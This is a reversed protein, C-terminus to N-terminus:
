NSKQLRAEVEKQETIDWNTGIMRIAKGSQDREISALAKITRVAGDPRCIRFETDFEKEGAIAQRIEFDGRWADEPHLCILWEDYSGCVEAEDIGYLVFMQSDWVTKNGILDYEWVGVGGARTALALRTSVACLENEAAQRRTIGHLLLICFIVILFSVSGCIWYYGLVRREFEKLAEVETEGVSVILPYDKLTRYSYVRRVGDVISEDIFHGSDGKSFENKFRKRFDVGVQTGDGSQRVRLVGDLGVLAVVSNEGLNVKKYFEAFYFPDASVAVMGGFSGDPKNIRRTLQIAWKGTVKGMVPKSIYLGIDENVHVQFHERDKFNAKLFPEQSSVAMDGNEDVVGLLLFPQDKFRGERIYGPIDIKKGEKEYQMKLFIAIQDLGKITRITNEELAITLNATENIANKYELQKENQVKFYLSGWLCALLLVGFSVTMLRVHRGTQLDNKNM